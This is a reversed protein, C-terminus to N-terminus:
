KLYLENTSWGLITFDGMYVYRAKWGDGEHLTYASMDIEIPDYERHLLIKDIHRNMFIRKNDKVSQIVLYLGSMDLQFIVSGQDATYNKLVVPAIRFNGKEPYKTRFWKELRTQEYLGSDNAGYLPIDPSFCMSYPIHNHWNVDIYVTGDISQSYQREAETYYAKTRFLYNSQAIYLMTLIVLSVIMWLNNFSHKKLLRISIIIAALEAGFVQRNAGFGILANFLIMIIWINFFFANARYMSLITRKHHYKKWLIIAIMAFSAKLTLFMCAVSQYLAIAGVHISSSAREHAGPSLCIFLTGIGFGIMMIYQRLTMHRINQLWYVILAGSVGINLAENGNGAILSFLGLLLIHWWKDYNTKSNFFLLFILVLTFTWIYGIQCSPVMKTQFIILSFLIVTFVGRYNEIKVHCTRCLALIFVIYALANAVAFATHGWIGCFSQVLLHPIHRGNVTMYHVNLSQIIQSLSTVIEDKHDPRFDFAYNIDDGLWVTNYSFFAIIAAILLIATSSIIIQRKM